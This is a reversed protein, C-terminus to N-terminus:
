ARIVTLSGDEELKIVKSPPGSLKERQLNVVYDVGELIEKNIEQFSMPTPEGSINASTSILPKRFTQILSRCFEDSAIRIGVTRDNGLLNPALGTPDHYIVTTSREQHQLFDLLHEPVEKVYHHLMDVDSVLCILAKHDPRQKIKYIKEVVKPRTADGGIGWVTDTPYLITKGSRLTRLTNELEEKHASM